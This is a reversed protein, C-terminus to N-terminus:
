RRYDAGALSQAVPAKWAELEAKMRAVREPQQVSLDNAEDPDQEINYLLIPPLLDSGRHPRDL